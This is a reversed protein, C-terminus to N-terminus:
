IEEQNKISLEYEARSKVPKCVNYFLHLYRSL